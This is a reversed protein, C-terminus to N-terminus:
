GITPDLTLGLTLGSGLAQAAVKQTPLPTLFICQRTPGLFDHFLMFHMGFSLCPMACNFVNLLTQVISYTYVNIVQYKIEFHFKSWQLM